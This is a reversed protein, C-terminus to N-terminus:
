FPLDRNSLILEFLQPWGAILAGNIFEAGYNSIPTERPFYGKNSVALQIEWEEVQNAVMLDRLQKPIDLSQVEETVKPKTSQVGSAAQVVTEKPANSDAVSCLQRNADNVTVGGAVRNAPAPTAPANAASM